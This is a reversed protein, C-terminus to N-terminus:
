ANYLKVPLTDAEALTVEIIVSKFGYSLTPNTNLQDAELEVADNDPLITGIIDFSLIFKVSKVVAVGNITLEDAPTLPM